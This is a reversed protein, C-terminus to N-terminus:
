TRTDQATTFWSHVGLSVFPLRKQV